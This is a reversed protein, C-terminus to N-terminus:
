RGSESSSSRELDTRAPSGAPPKHTPIMLDGGEDETIKMADPDVNSMNKVPFMMLPEKTEPMKAFIGFRHAKKGEKVHNSTVSAEEKTIIDVSMERRPWPGKRSKRGSRGRSRIM